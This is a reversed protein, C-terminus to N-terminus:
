FWNFFNMLKLQEVMPIAVRIDCHRSGMICHVRWSGMVTVLATDLYCDAELVVGNMQLPILAPPNCRDHMSSKRERRATGGDDDWQGREGRQGAM